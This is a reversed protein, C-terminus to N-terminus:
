RAVVRMAHGDPDRLMLGRSFGLAPADVRVVDPSVLGGGHQDALLPSPDATVLTTQWHALDNAALDLPSPRGSRPALYELLEVGPGHKARLTTIRLRAGFVNNLHEQEEGYNEGQGAVTLGLGDRYFALAAATSAVTIATHDIGLFLSDNAQWRADGKGAPFQLVELFHGDPDRFYFADIGAAGPNWEPLRQPGTSAHAVGHQRLRAYAQAMDSTIIAIHQFWRDNGRTDIPYPRGRPALYETLELREGGLRLTAVRARAGFLGHLLEFPRGSLEAAAGGDPAFGLVDVFFRTSRALDAVTAGVAAVAEVRVRGADGGVPGRAHLPLAVALALLAGIAARHSRGRM